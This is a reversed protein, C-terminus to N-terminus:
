MHEIYLVLIEIINKLFHLIHFIFQVKQSVQLQSNLIRVEGSISHIKSELLYHFLTFLICSLNNYSNVIWFCVKTIKIMSCSESKM